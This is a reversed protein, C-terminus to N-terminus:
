VCDLPLFAFSPTRRLRSRRDSANEGDVFPARGGRFRGSNEGLENSDFFYDRRSRAASLLFADIFREWDLLRSRERRRELRVARLSRVALVGRLSELFRLFNRIRRVNRVVVRRAAVGNGVFRELSGRRRLALLFARQRSPSKRM